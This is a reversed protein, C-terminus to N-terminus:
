SRGQASVYMCADPSNILDPPVALRLVAIVLLQDKTPLGEHLAEWERRMHEQQEDTMVPNIIVKDTM